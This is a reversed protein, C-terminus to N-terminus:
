PQRALALAGARRAAEEAIADMARDWREPSLGMVIEELIELIERAEGRTVPVDTEGEALDAVLLELREKLERYRQREEYTM